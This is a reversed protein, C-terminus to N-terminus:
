EEPSSHPHTDRKTQSKSQRPVQIEWGFVSKSMCKFQEFIQEEDDSGKLRNLIDDCYKDASTLEKNSSQQNLYLPLTLDFMYESVSISIIFSGTEM